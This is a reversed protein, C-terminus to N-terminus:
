CKPWKTFMQYNKYSNQDKQKYKPWKIFIKLWKQYKQLTNHLCKADNWHDNQGIQLCKTMKTFINSFMKTFM